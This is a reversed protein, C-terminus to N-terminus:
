KNTECTKQTEHVQSILVKELSQKLRMIVQTKFKLCLYETQYKFSIEMGCTSM